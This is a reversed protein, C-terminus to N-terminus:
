RSVEQGVQRMLEVGYSSLVWRGNQGRRSVIGNRRLARGYTLDRGGRRLESFSFRVLNLDSRYTLVELEVPGFRTPVSEPLNGCGGGRRDMVPM